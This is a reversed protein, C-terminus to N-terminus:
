MLLRMLNYDSFSFYYVVATLLATAVIDCIFWIVTYQPLRRQWDILVPLFGYSTIIMGVALFLLGDGLNTTIHTAFAMFLFTAVLALLALGNLVSANFEIRQNKLWKGHHINDAM